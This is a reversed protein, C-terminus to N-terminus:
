TLARLVVVPVIVDRPVAGRRAIRGVADLDDLRVRELGGRVVVVLREDPDGFHEGTRRQV